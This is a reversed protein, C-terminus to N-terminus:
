SRRLLFYAGTGAAAVVLTGGLVWPWVPAPAPAPAQAQLMAQQQLLLAQQQAAEAERRARRAGFISALFEAVQGTTKVATDVHEASVKAAGFGGFNPDHIVPPRPLLSPGQPVPLAKASSHASPRFVGATHRSARASARGLDMGHYGGRQVYGSTIPATFWAGGDGYSVPMEVRGWVVGTPAEIFTPVPYKGRAFPSMRQTLALLNTRRQSM